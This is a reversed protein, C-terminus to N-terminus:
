PDQVEPLRLFFGVALGIAQVGAMILIANAIGHHEALRGSMWSGAAMTGFVCMQYLSLARGVRGARCGVDQVTVNMTAMALLWGWGFIILGGVTLILWPSLAIIVAGAIMASVTMRITAENTLRARV